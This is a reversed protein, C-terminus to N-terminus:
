RTTARTPPAAAVRLRTILDGRMSTMVTLQVSPHARLFAAFDQLSLNEQGVQYRTDTNTAVTAPACTPCKRLVLGGGPSAPLLVQAPSVEFSQELVRIQATSPSVTGLVLVTTLALLPFSRTLM